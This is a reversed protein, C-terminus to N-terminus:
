YTTGQQQAGPAGASAALAGAGATLGALGYKKLININKDSFVVYNSTPKANAAELTALRNQSMALNHQINPDNPLKKAAAQLMAFHNREDILSQPVTRSGQDLYRIGKIGAASLRNTAEQPGLYNELLTVAQAGNTPVASKVRLPLKAVESSIADQFPQPQEALPKDWDLFEDPHADIAVQYMRGHGGKAIADQLDAFVKQNHAVAADWEASGSYDLGKEALDDLRSQAATYRERAEDVPYYIKDKDIGAPYILNGSGDMGLHIEKYKKAVAPNEAFYGGHGYSQAGEGTGIKSFDFADFDYPSGHYADIMGLGGAPVGFQAGMTLAQVLAPSPLPKGGMMSTVWANSPLANAQGLSSPDVQAAPAGMSFMAQPDVRDAPDPQGLAYALFSPSSLPPRSGALADALPNRRGDM